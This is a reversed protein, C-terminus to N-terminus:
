RSSVGGSSPLRPRPQTAQTLQQQVVSRLVRFTVFYLARSAFGLLGLLWRTPGKAQEAVARRCLQFAQNGEIAQHLQEHAIAQEFGRKWHDVYDSPFLTKFRPSRMLEAAHEVIRLAKLPDSRTAQSMSGPIVTWEMGPHPWYCFGHELGLAQIAFTDGWSGLEVPFGGLDILPQRRFITAASLSLTAPEKLLVERLYQAPELYGAARVHTLGDTSIKEGAPDVRIFQGSIVGTRPHQEALQMMGAFFGPLVCDDAAGSYVFDCTAAALARQFSRHFGINNENQLFRIQPYRSVWSRIISVSDDTSGDDVIIFEDAPRSQLLMAEIARSVFRGHNYNCIIATLTPGFTATRPSVDQPVVSTPITSAQEFPKSQLNQGPHEAPQRLRNMFQKLGEPDSGDPCWPAFETENPVFPGNTTEHMIVSDSEVLVTHWANSSLRYLSPYGTGPAGLRIRRTERGSDDFLVVQLEGELLHFSESKNQHRHIRVFSERTFAIVMEQILDDSTRHLCLRARQLPATAALQRLSKLTEEDVVVVDEQSFLVVNM